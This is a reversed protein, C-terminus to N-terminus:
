EHFDSFYKFFAIVGQQAHVARAFFDATEAVLADFIV